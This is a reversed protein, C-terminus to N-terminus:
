SLAGVTGAPDVVAVELGHGAALLLASDPGVLVRLRTGQTRSRRDLSALVSVGASGVHTAERLDVVLRGAQRAAGSAAAIAASLVGATALDVPGRAAVVPVGGVVRSSVILGQAPSTAPVASAEEGLSQFFLEDLKARSTPALGGASEVAAVLREALALLRVNRQQSSWRLLEFAADGDIGYVLMLVGKAQDIVAHSELAQHLQVNVADAVAVRQSVSVDVLFGSVTPGDATDERGGSLTVTREEGALDVLVYHEGLPTGDRECADLAAAVRDRHDPRVHRLFLDRTPVVEGAEMGHIEFMGDSWRWRDGGASFQYQGVQAEDQSHM